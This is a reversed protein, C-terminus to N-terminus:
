VGRNYMRGELAFAVSGKAIIRAEICVDRLRAEQFRKGTIALLTCSRHFAGMRLVNNDSKGHLKQKIKLPKAYLAQDLVCVNKHLSVQGMINASQTVLELVTSMNTAPTNITPLNDLTNVNVADADSVSTLAQGAQFLKLLATM